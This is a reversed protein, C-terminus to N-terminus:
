AREGCFICYNVLCATSVFKTCVESKRSLQGSLSFVLSWIISSDCWSVLILIFHGIRSSLQVQALPLELSKNNLQLLLPSGWLMCSPNQNLCYIKKTNWLEQPLQKLSARDIGIQCKWRRCAKGLLPVFSSWLTGLSNYSVLCLGGFIALALLLRRVDVFQLRQECKWKADTKSYINTANKSRHLTRGCLSHLLINCAIPVKTELNRLNEHRAEADLLFIFGSTSSCACRTRESSCRHRQLQLLCWVHDGTGNVSQLM